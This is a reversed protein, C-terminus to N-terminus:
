ELKLIMGRTVLLCKYSCGVNISSSKRDFMDM